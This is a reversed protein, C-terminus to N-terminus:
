RPPFHTRFGTMWVMVPLCVPAASTVVLAMRQALQVPIAQEM